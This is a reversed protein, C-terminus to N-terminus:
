NLKAAKARFMNAFKRDGDNDKTNLTDIVDALLYYIKPENTKDKLPLLLAKAKKYEKADCYLHALALYAYEKGVGYKEDSFDANIAKELCTIAEEKKNFEIIRDMFYKANNVHNKELAQQM